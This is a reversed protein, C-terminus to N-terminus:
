GQWSAIVGWRSNAADAQLIVCGGQAAFNTTGNPASFNGPGAGSGMLEVTFAGRAQVLLPASVSAGVNKLIAIDGGQPAVPLQATNQAGTSDYWDNSVPARQIDVVSGPAHSTPIGLSPL